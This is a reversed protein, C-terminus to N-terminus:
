SQERRSHIAGRRRAMFVRARKDVSRVVTRLIPILTFAPFRVGVRVIPPLPHVGSLLLAGRVLKM